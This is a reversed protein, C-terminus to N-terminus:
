TQAGLNMAKPGDLDVVRVGLGLLRQRHRLWHPESFRGARIVVLAAKDAIALAEGSAARVLTPGLAVEANGLGRAMEALETLRSASHRYAGIIADRHAPVGLYREYKNLQTMVEPTAGDSCRIRSDDVRKVEGFVIVLRGNQDEITVVDMRPATTDEEWAPLGMELDIVSANEPQDLLRDILPKEGGVKSYGADITAIWSKLTEIGEYARNPVGPHVLERDSLSAYKLGTMRREDDNVVYKAHVSLKPQNRGDFGVRAVSQGRRYFNLYGDRLALRLGQAGATTGSPRWLTLLDRWWHDPQAAAETLAQMRADSLSRRFPRASRARDTHELTM